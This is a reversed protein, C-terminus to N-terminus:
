LMCIDYIEDLNPLDTIKRGKNKYDEKSICNNMYLHSSYSGKIVSILQGYIELPNLKLNYLTQALPIKKRQILFNKYFGIFTSENAEKLKEVNVFNPSRYFFNIYKTKTNYSYKNVDYIYDKSYFYETDHDGEYILLNHRSFFQFTLSGDIMFMIKRFNAFIPYENLDRFSSILRLKNNSIPYHQFDEDILKRIM